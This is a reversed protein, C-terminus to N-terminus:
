EETKAVNEPAEPQKACESCAGGPQCTCEGAPYAPGNHVACDSLHAPDPGVSEPTDNPDGEAQTVEFTTWGTPDHLAAEDLLEQGIAGLTTVGNETVIRPKVVRARTLTMGTLTGSADRGTVRGSIGVGMGEAKKVLAWDEESIPVLTQKGTVPHPVSVLFNGDADKMETAVAPVLALLEDPGPKETQALEQEALERKGKDLDITEIAESTLVQCKGEAQLKEFHERICASRDPDVPEAYTVPEDDMFTGYPVGGNEIEAETLVAPEPVPLSGIIAEVTSEGPAVYTSGSPIAIVGPKVTPKVERVGFRDRLLVRLHTRLTGVEVVGVPTMGLQALLPAVMEDPLTDIAEEFNHEHFTWTIEDLDVSVTKGQPDTEYNALSRLLDPLTQDMLQKAKDIQGPDIGQEASLTVIMHFQLVMQVIIAALEPEAGADAMLKGIEETEIGFVPRTDGPNKAEIVDALALIEPRRDRKEEPRRLAKGVVPKVVPHNLVQRFRAVAYGPLTDPDGMLVLAVAMQAADEYNGAKFMEWTKEEQARMDKRLRKMQDYTTKNM